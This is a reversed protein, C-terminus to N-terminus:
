FYKKYNKIILKKLKIEVFHYSIYAFSLTIIIAIVVSFNQFGLKNIERIIILGIANHILYWSYSVLGISPIFYVKFNLNLVLVLFTFLILILFYLENSSYRENIYINLLSFIVILLLYAYNIKKYNYAVLGLLFLNAHPSISSLFIILNSDILIIINLFICLVLWYLISKNLDNVLFFILGFIIYFKLEIMLAWYIGDIYQFNLSPIINAFILNMIGTFWSVEKGPLDFCTFFILTALGCFLYAPYIRAFRRLYFEYLNPIKEITMAICFGSIIFFIDVGSWGYSALNLSWNDDRLLYDPSYHSTYHFFVVFLIAVGRLMDIKDIRKDNKSYM